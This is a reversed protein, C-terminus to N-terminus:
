VGVMECVSVRECVWGGECVGEREGVCVSLSYRSTGLPIRSLCHSHSIVKLDTLRKLLLSLQTSYQDTNLGDM